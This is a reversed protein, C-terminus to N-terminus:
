SFLGRIKMYQIMKLMKNAMKPYIQSVNSKITYLQTTKDQKLFPGLVLKRRNLGGM